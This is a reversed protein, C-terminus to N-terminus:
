MTNAEFSYSKSFLKDVNIQLNCESTGKELFLFSTSCKERHETNKLLEIHSFKNVVDPTLLHYAIFDNDESAGGKAVWNKM